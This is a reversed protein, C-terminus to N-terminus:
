GSIFHRRSTLVVVASKRDEILPYSLYRHATVKITMTQFPMSAFAVPTSTRLFRGIVLLTRAAFVLILISTVRARNDFHM